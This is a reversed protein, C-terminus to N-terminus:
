TTAIKKIYFIYENDNEHSSLLESGTQQAYVAMNDVSAADDTVVRVIEGEAMEDMVKKTRLISIPCNLGRTDLERNFDAM